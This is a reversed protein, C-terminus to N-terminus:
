PVIGANRLRRVTDSEPPRVPMATVEIVISDSRTELTVDHQPLQWRFARFREGFVPMLGDGMRQDGLDEPPRRFTDRLAAQVATASRAHTGDVSLSCRDFVSADQFPPVAPLGRNRTVSLVEPSGPRAARLEESTYRVARMSGDPEVMEVTEVRTATHDIRWGAATLGRNGIHGGEVLPATCGRAVAVFTSALSRAEVDDRAPANCSSLALAALM